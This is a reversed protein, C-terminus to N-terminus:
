KKQRKKSKDTQNVSTNQEPEPIDLRRPDPLPKPETRPSRELRQVIRDIARARFQEPVRELREAIPTPLQELDIEGTRAMERLSKMLAQTDPRGERTPMGRAQEERKQHAAIFDRVHRRQDETLRDLMRQQYGSPHPGERRIRRLQEMTLGQEPMKTTRQSRDIDGRAHPREAQKAAASAPDRAITRLERIEDATFGAKAVYAAVDRHFEDKIEEVETHQKRTMRVAKDDANRLSRLARDFLPMSVHGGGAYAVVPMEGGFSREVGPLDPPPVSPGRLLDPTTGSRPPPAERPQQDQALAPSASAAQLTPVALLLVFLAFRRTNTPRTTLRLDPM